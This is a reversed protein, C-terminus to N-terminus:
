TLQSDWKRTPGGVRGEAAPGVAIRPRGTATALVRAEVFIRRGEIEAAKIDSAVSIEAHDTGADAARRAVAERVVNEAAAIAEREDLFDRLTEGASVRFLGEVPQSV